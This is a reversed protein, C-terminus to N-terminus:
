LAKLAAEFDPDQAIEPVQETHTVIGKEDIVVIARSFLGALLGTQITVQYGSGFSDDRLSSGSIVNNLGELECFRRFAFPLDKSVCVVVTNELASVEKNFRRVSAACVGTDLSPFINLIVKKGAFETLGFDSLNTNTLKFDPASSGVKPLNGVTEILNGKHTISAM